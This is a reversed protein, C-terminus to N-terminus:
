CGASPDGDTDSVPFTDPWPVRSFSGELYTRGGVSRFCKFGCGERGKLVDM